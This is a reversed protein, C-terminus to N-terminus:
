IAVDEGTAVTATILDTFSTLFQDAEKRTWENAEALENLLQSRNM